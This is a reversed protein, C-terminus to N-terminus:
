LGAKVVDLFWQKNKGILECNPELVWDFQKHVNNTM